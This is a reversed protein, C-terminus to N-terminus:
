SSGFSDSASPDSSVLKQQQVWGAGNRVFTYVAGTSDYASALATDGSIAVTNGFYDQIKGVSPLMKPQETWVLPAKAERVASDDDLPSSASCASVLIAAVAAGCSLKTRSKM